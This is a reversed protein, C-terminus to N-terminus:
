AYCPLLFSLYGSWYHSVYLWLPLVWRALRKHRDFQKTFARIYTFLIFPLIIAALVIHSILLFFYVYRIVGERCFSTEESTIHYLVYLVLFIGSLIVSITMFKRHRTMNNAYRIQYFAFILLCFTIFNIGSYLAPLFSLDISLDIHVRRMMLILLFLVASFIWAIKNLKKERQINQPIM